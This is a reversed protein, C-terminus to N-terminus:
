INKKVSPYVYLLVTALMTLAGYFVIKEGLGIIAWVSYCAAIVSAASYLITEKKSFFQTKLLIFLSLSSYLYPVLFMFVSTESMTNFHESISPSLTSFYVITILLGSFILGFYPTLQKNTIAFIKPFLKDDAAAKAIQGMVMTWGSITGCCAIIACISVFAGATPGILITALLSFPSSSVVLQAQPVIGMIVSSSLIYITGALVVGLLTAIPVTKKPNEVIGANVTATEVGIFAWLTMAATRSIAEFSSMNNTHFMNLFATKDFWFWGFITASVVPILMISTTYMQIRGMFRPGFMNMSIFFWIIGLGCLCAAFPQHLVPFFFSLYGVAVIAIAVNGVWAGVWYIFATQFSLYSGYTQRTFAYPGGARPILMSFRSFVLALACAGFLSLFWGFISISGIGALTTPLLFMGSGMMNGAVSATLMLLNMKNKKTNQTMTYNKGM